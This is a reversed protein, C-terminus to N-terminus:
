SGVFWSVVCEYLPSMNSQRASELSSHNFCDKWKLERWIELVFTKCLGLSTDHPRLCTAINPSPCYKYLYSQMLEHLAHSHNCIWRPTLSMFVWHLLRLLIIAKRSSFSQTSSYKSALLTFIATIVDLSALFSGLLSGVDCLTLFILANVWPLIYKRRLTPSLKNVLFVKDSLM